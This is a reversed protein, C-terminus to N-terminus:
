AQLGPSNPRGFHQYRSTNSAPLAASTDLEELLTTARLSPIAQLMPVLEERGLKHARERARARPLHRFRWSPSQSM